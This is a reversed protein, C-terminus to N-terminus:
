ASLINHKYLLKCGTHVLKFGCVLGLVAQGPPTMCALAAAGSALAGYGVKDKVDDMQDAVAKGAMFAGIAPAAVDSLVDGAVGFLDAASEPVVEFAEVAGDSVETFSTAGDIMEADAANLEQASELEQSTMNDAQRSRNISSNEMVTNDPTYEGGNAGSEIRSVDKDSVQYSVTEYHGGAVGQDYVWVEQTVEGGNMFMEVEQPNDHLEEPVLHTFWDYGDLTPDGDKYSINNFIEKQEAPMNIWALESSTYTTTSTM